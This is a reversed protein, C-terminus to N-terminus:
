VLFTFTFFDINECHFIKLPWLAIKWLDYAKDVKLYELKLSEARLAFNFLRVCAQIGFVVNRGVQVDLLNLVLAIRSNREIRKLM